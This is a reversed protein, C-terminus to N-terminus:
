PLPGEVPWSVPVSLLLPRVGEAEGFGLARAREQLRPLASERAIAERVALNERELAARAESLRQVVQGQEVAATSLFTFLLIWAVGFLMGGAIALALRRRPSM